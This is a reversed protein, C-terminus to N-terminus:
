SLRIELVFRSLIVVLYNAFEYITKQTLALVSILAYVKNIILFGPVLLFFSYM